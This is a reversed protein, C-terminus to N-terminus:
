EKSVGWILKFYDLYGHAIDKDHIVFLIANNEKIHGIAVEDKYIEIWVPSIINHPLYRVQTFKMQERVRGYDRVNSDYIYKCHIGKKIRQEHWDLLYGEIKENAIRPAGIAYQTEGKKLRALAREYFSKIGRFGEYTETKIVSKGEKRLATLSPLLVDIEREQEKIKREKERLFEKLYMPEAATFHKKNAKMTYSVLGKRILKDLFEYVKSAHINADRVIYTTTVQGLKLLTLYIKIETKTLGIDELIKTNM